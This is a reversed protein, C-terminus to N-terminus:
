MEGFFRKRAMIIEDIHIEKDHSLQCFQTGYTYESEGDERERHRVVGQVRLKFDSFINSASLDFWLVDGKNFEEASHFRFGQASFDDIKISKWHKKDKSVASNSSFFSDRMYARKDISIKNPKRKPEHEANYSNGLYESMIQHVRDIHVRMEIDPEVFQVGYVGDSQRRMIKGKVRLHTYVSLNSYTLDFDLVDGDKFTEDSQFGLGTQSFDTIEIKEGSAESGSFFAIIRKCGRRDKGAFMM